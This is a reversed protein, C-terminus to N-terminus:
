EPDGIAGVEDMGGVHHERALEIAIYQLWCQLTQALQRLM